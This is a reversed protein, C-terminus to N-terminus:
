KEEEKMRRVFELFFALFISLMLGVLFAVIVILKKKPKVPNDLTEINGIIHTPNMSLPTISFKLMQEKNNLTSIYKRIQQLQTEQQGIQLAYIGALAADKSKLSIIKQKYNNLEKKLQELNTTNEKINHQTLKILEKQQNIYANTKEKYQREIKDIVTQIYAVAEDNNNGQIIISIIRDSKKEISITKVRPLEIKKGKVNVQYEYSLKQQINNINDIPKEHIQGVELVAKVEYIPKAILFSYVLALLTFLVTVLSILKKKRKLVYFLERLDLKNEEIYQTSNKM